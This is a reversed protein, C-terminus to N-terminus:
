WATRINKSDKSSESVSEFKRKKGGRRKSQELLDLLERAYCFSFCSQVTERFMPVSKLSVLDRNVLTKVTQFAAKGHLTGSGLLGGTNGECSFARLKECFSRAVTTKEEGRGYQKNLTAGADIFDKLAEFYKPYRDDGEEVWFFEELGELLYISFATQGTYNANPDAGLTLLQRFEAPKFKFTEASSMHENVYALWPTGDPISQSVENLDCHLQTVLYDVVEPVHILAFNRIAPITAIYLPPAEFDAFYNGDDKLYPAVRPYLASQLLAERVILSPHCTKGQNSFCAQRSGFMAIVSIELEEILQSLVALSPEEVESGYNFCDRLHYVLFGQAYGPSNRIYTWGAHQDAADFRRSKVLATYAKVLSLAPDFGPDVKSRLYHMMEDTLLFDRVTRHLFGVTEVEGPYSKGTELLGQSQANLQWRAQFRLDDLSDTPPSGIPLDIAYRDNQTEKAHHVLADFMLPWHLRPTEESKLALLFTQAMKEHYVDDISDLMHKFLKELESPMAEVRKQLVGLDDYNTLGDRLSKTVLFVWLFVGNAKDRINRILSAGGVEDVSCTIWRKHSELRERAFNGIDDQTYDHIALQPIGDFADKFVNLPRSSVCLKLNSSNSLNELFECLHDTEGEYEDLGDILWCFKTGLESKESIAGLASTLESVSWPQPDKRRAANRAANWRSPCVISIIGPCAHFVDYLLSQLLGRQSRQELTGASWFYHSAIAVPHPHAWEELFNVTAPHAALFKMLTSKGSGARGFIWFLTDSKSRLWKSVTSDLVWQFTKASAEAIAEHRHTRSPFSLSALITSQRKKIDLDGHIYRLKRVIQEMALMTQTDSSQHIRSRDNNVDLKLSHLEESLRDLSAM